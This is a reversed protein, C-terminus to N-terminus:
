SKRGKANKSSGNKEGLSDFHKRLIDNAVTSIQIIKEQETTRRVAEAELSDYIDVDIRVPKTAMRDRMMTVNNDLQQVGKNLKSVNSLFMNCHLLTVSLSDSVFPLDGHSFHHYHINKM